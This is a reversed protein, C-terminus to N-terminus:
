DLDFSLEELEIKKVLKGESNYLFYDNRNGFLLGNNKSIVGSLDYLHSVESPSSWLLKGDYDQWQIKFKESSVNNTKIGLAVIGDRFDLVTMDYVKNDTNLVKMDIFRSGTLWYNSFSASKFNENEDFVSEIHPDFCFPYGMSYMGTYRVLYSPQNYTQFFFTAPQDNPYSHKKTTYDFNDTNYIKSIPYYMVEKGSNSKIKFASYAHTADDINAIGSQLEKVNAIIESNLNQMSKTTADYRFIMTEAVITYINGDDFKFSENNHSHYGEATNSIELPEIQDFTGKVADYVAWYTKNNYKKNDYDSSKISGMMFVKLSKSQDTFAASSNVNFTYKKVATNESDNFNESPKSKNILFLFPVLLSLGLFIIGVVILLPRKSKFDLPTKTSANTYTHKHNVSTQNTEVYFSTHCTECEFMNDDLYKVKKAGCSPCQITKLNSM